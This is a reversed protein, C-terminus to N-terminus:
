KVSNAKDNKGEKERDRCKGTGECGNKKGSVNSLFNCACHGKSMFLNIHTKGSFLSM